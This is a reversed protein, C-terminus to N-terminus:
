AALTEIRRVAEAFEALEAVVDPGTPRVLLGAPRLAHVIRALDAGPTVELVSRLAAGRPSPVRFNQPVWAGTGPRAVWAPVGEIGHEAVLLERVSAAHAQPDPVDTGPLGVVLEVRGRAREALDAVRGADTTARRWYGGVAVGLRIRSTRGAAVALAMGVDSYHRPADHCWARTYGLEEARAVHEPTAVGVALACDIEM